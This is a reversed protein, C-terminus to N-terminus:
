KEVIIKSEIGKIVKALSASSKWSELQNILKDNKMTSSNSSIIELYIELLKKLNNIPEAPLQNLMTVLLNELEINHHGSIQFMDSMLLDTFRKLPAFEIQEHKGLIEGILESKINSHNVGKIWIEAGFSRITKESSIMCTAVFLHATEGFNGWIAYLSEIAKTVLKKHGEEWFKPHDLSRHIIQALLIEPNNPILFMLRQIDNHEAVIYTSKIYMYDYILKEEGKSTPLIKSLMGKLGEAKKYKDGFEIKLIGRTDQVKINQKKAYDYHDYTYNEVFTKWPFQGSFYNFRMKNCSFGEFAKYEIKPFKTLSATMWLSEMNFPGQPISDETLLFLILNKYEGSLKEHSATIAEEINDLACRSIAVQFDFGDPAVSKQQYQSLRDILTLSSIWAPSHTPTSLLPLTDKNTIKNLASLLIRKYPEYIIDKNHTSWGEFNYISYKGQLEKTEKPFRQMLIGTYTIMFNALMHDLSGLNTLWPNKLLKSARQIAPELKMINNGIIEDQLNVLSAPLLDIHYTQNNDFAQSALFLLEDFNEAPKIQNNKSILSETVVPDSVDLVSESKTEFFLFDTLINKANSFMSEQYQALTDKLEESSVSGYKQILKAAKSQIDDDNHIFAQCTGLCIGEQKDKHKKALKDLILLSSSVVSKTESSLLISINDLFSDININKEDIIKKFHQLVTNVVKSHPSNLAIFLENQLKLLEEKSPELQVFLDMFWGSLTKNFNRTSALLSQRLLREKEINGESSYKKLTQTWNPENVSANETFHLY